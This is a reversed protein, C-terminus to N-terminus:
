ERRFGEPKGRSGRFRHDIATSPHFRFQQSNRGRPLTCNAGCPWRHRSATRPDRLFRSDVRFITWSEKNAGNFRASETLESEISPHFLRIMRFTLAPIFVNRTATEGTGRSNYAFRGSRLPAGGCIARQEGPEATRRSSLVLPLSLSLSPSLSASLVVGAFCRGNVISSPTFLPLVCRPRGKTAEVPSVSRFRVRNSRQM